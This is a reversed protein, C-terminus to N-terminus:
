PHDIAIVPREVIEQEPNLQFIGRRPRGACDMLTASLQKIVEAVIRFSLIVTPEGALQNYLLRRLADRSCKAILCFTPPAVRFENSCQLTVPECDVVALQASGKRTTEGKRGSVVLYM